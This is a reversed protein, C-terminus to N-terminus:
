GVVMLSAFIFTSLVINHACCPNMSQNRSGTVACTQSGQGVIKGLRQQRDSSQGEKVMGDRNEVRSTDLRDRDIGMVQTFQYSIMQM